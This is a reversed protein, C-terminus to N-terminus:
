QVFSGPGAADKTQGVIDITSAGLGNRCCKEKFITAESVGNYM